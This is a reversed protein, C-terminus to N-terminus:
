DDTVRSLVRPWTDPQRGTVLIEGVQRLGAAIEAVDAGPRRVGTDVRAALLAGTAAPSPQAAVAAPEDTLLVIGALPLAGPDARGATGVAVV